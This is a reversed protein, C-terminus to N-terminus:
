DLKDISLDVKQRENAFTMAEKIVPTKDDVYVFTVYQEKAVIRLYRKRLYKIDYTPEVREGAEANRKIIEENLAKIYRIFKEETSIDVGNFDLKM